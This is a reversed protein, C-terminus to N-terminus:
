AVSTLLGALDKARAEARRHAEARSTEAKDILGAMAPVSHALTLEPVIFEPRMGMATGLVMTLYPVAFDKGEQPTGPGYAGGRSTVVTVPKGAVTTPEASATRGMVIVHDLWAKLASPLSYNYLPAGVLVADASELESILKERLALIRRQEEDREEPPTFATYYAAGDLHPIPEASLDRYIVSGEPHQEEWARRFSAAVERSVSNDGNLSTDLHLLTAM